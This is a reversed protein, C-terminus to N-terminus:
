LLDDITAKVKTKAAAVKKPDKPPGSNKKRLTSTIVVLEQLFSMPIQPDDYGKYKQKMEEILARRRGELEAPSKGELSFTTLNAEPM